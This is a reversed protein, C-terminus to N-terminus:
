GFLGSILGNALKIAGFSGAIAVVMGALALLGDDSIIAVAVMFVVVAAVSSSMPVFELFPMALGCLICLLQLPLLMPQRLVWTMRPRTVRDIWRVPRRLFNLARDFKKDDIRREMMWEPLWIHDRGVVMQVAILAIIVGGTTPLGPISSAPSAVIMAPVLLLAGFSAQGLREIIGRVSPSGNMTAEHLTTVIAGVEDAHPQDADRHDHTM